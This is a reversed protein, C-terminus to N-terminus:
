ESNRSQKLRAKSQKLSYANLLWVRVTGALELTLGERCAEKASYTFGNFSFLHCLMRANAFFIEYLL